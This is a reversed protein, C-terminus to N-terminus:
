RIPVIRICLCRRPRGHQVTHEGFVAQQIDDLVKDAEVIRGFLYDLNESCIMLIKCHPLRNYSRFLRDFAVALYANEPM